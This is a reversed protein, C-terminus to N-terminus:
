FDSRYIYIDYLKDDQFFFRVRMPYGRDVLDYFLSSLGEYHAAGFLEQLEERSMGIKAGNLSGTFRRDYRIQWVRDQYWYLYRFDPYFFVVDDQWSEEGRVPFVRLPTGYKEWAAPLMLGIDSAADLNLPPSLFAGDDGLNSRIDSLDPMTQAPILAAPLLLM